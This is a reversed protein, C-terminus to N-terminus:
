TFCLLRQLGIVMGIQLGLMLSVVGPAVFLADIMTTLTPIATSPSPLPSVFCSRHTAPHPAAGKSEMVPEVINLFSDVARAQLQLAQWRREVCRHDTRTDECNHGGLENDLVPSHCM